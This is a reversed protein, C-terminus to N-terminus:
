RRCCMLAAPCNRGSLRCRDYRAIWIRSRASTMRKKSGKASETGSIHAGALLHAEALTLVVAMM